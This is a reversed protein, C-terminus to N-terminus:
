SVKGRKKSKSKSYLNRDDALIQQILRKSEADRELRIKRNLFKDM